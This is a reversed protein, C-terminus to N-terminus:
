DPIYVM